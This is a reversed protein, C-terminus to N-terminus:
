YDDIKGIKAFCLLSNCLIQLMNDLCINVLSNFALQDTIVQNMPFPIDLLMKGDDAGTSWVMLHKKYAPMNRCKNYFTPEQLQPYKRKLHGRKYVGGELLRRM